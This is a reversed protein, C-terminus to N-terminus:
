EGSSLIALIGASAVAGTKERMGAWGAWGSVGTASGSVGAGSVGTASGSVGAGPVGNCTKPLPLSLVSCGPELGLKEPETEPLPLPLM